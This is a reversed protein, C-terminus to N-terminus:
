NELGVRMGEIGKGRDKKQMINVKEESFITKLVWPLEIKGQIDVPSVENESLNSESAKLLKQGIIQM